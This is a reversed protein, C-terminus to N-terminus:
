EERGMEGQDVGKCGTQVPLPGKRHHNPMPQRTPKQRKENHQPPTPRVAHTEM